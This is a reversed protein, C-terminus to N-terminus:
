PVAVPEVRLNAPPPLVFFAVENSAGSETTGSVVTVVAYWQGPVASIVWEREAPGTTSVFSTGDPVVSKTRSLYVRFETTPAEIPEVYDWALKWASTVVPGEASACVAAALSLMIAYILQKM